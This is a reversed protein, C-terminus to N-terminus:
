CQNCCTQRSCIFLIIEESTLNRNCVSCYWLISKSLNEQRYDKGYATKGLLRHMMQQSWQSLAILDHDGRHVELYTAASCSQGWDLQSCSRRCLEAIPRVSFLTPQSHSSVADSQHAPTYCLMISSAISWRCQRRWAQIRTVPLCKSYETHCLNTM